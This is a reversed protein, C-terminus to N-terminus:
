QRRWNRAIALIRPGTILYRRWLRRPENALRFAWEMRAIRMWKPARAKRGLLFEISAGICIATGKINEAAMIRHAIVESKPAGIAFLIYHWQETKLFQEIAAIEPESKLTVMPPIHQSLEVAPFKAKLEELMGADGGILAVKRNDFWGDQFLMATLDSGTVVELRIGQLWALAQLVRSDCLRLTAAAYARAFRNTAEDFRAEDRLTVIHDVNPTVVLSVRGEHSLRDLERVVPAYTADVFDIDLFNVTPLTPM